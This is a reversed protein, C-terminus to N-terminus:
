QNRKGVWNQGKQSEKGRGAGVEDESGNQQAAAGISSRRVAWGTRVPRRGLVFGNMEEIARQADKPHM